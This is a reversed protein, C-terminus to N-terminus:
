HHGSFFSVFQCVTLSMLCHKSEMQNSSAVFSKNSLPTVDRFRLRNYAPLLLVLIHTSVLKPLDSLFSNFLTTICPETGPPTIHELWNDLSHLLKYLSPSTYIYWSLSGIGGNAITSSIAAIARQLEVSPIAPLTFVSLKMWRFFISHWTPSPLHWHTCM